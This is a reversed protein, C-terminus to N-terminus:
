DATGALVVECRELLAALELPDAPQGAAPKRIWEIESEWGLEAVVEAGITGLLFAANANANEIIGLRRTRDRSGLEAASPPTDARMEHTTASERGFPELVKM